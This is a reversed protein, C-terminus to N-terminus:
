CRREEYDERPGRKDFHILKFGLMSLYYCGNYLTPHFWKDMGLSWRNCLQLKPISLYNEELDKSTIHNSIWTPILTSGQKPFPTGYISRPSYNHACVEKIDGIWINMCYIGHFICLGEYQNTKTQDYSNRITQQLRNHHKVCILVLIPLNRDEGLRLITRLIYLMDCFVDIGTVFIMRPEIVISVSRDIIVSSPAWKANSAAHTGRRRTRM